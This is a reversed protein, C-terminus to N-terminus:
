PVIKVSDSGAIPVNGHTRGKLFGQTDGSQFAATQTSFHCVLDLRGDGNVDEGNDNCFDLSPEDGTRGFTLTSANVEAPANFTTTSLIAVPIRGRSKPNISNPFSGPHIDIGVLTVGKCKGASGANFIQFIEAPSLARSFIEVEDV